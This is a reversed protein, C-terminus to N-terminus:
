GSVVPRIYENRYWRLFKLAEPSLLQALVQIRDEGSVPDLLPSLMKLRTASLLGEDYASTVKEIWGRIEHIARSSLLAPHPKVDQYHRSFVMPYSPLGELVVDRIIWIREGEIINYFNEQPATWQAQDLVARIEVRRLWLTSDQPQLTLNRNTSLRVERYAPGELIWAESLAHVALGDSLLARAVDERKAHYNAWWTFYLSIGSVILSLVALGLAYWGPEKYWIDNSM